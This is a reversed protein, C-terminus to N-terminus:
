SIKVCYVIYTATPYGFNFMIFNLRLRVLLLLSKSYCGCHRGNQHAEELTWHPSAVGAMDNVRGFVPLSQLGRELESASLLSHM